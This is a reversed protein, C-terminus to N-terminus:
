SNNSSLESQSWPPIMESKINLKIVEERQKNKFPQSLCKGQQIENLNISTEKRKFSSQTNYLFTTPDCGLHTEKYTSFFKMFHCVSLSSIEQTVRTATITVIM